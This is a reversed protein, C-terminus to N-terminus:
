NIEVKHAPRSKPLEIRLEGDKFEAKADKARVGEPLSFSRFISQHSSSSGSKTRREERQEAQITLRDDRVEVRVNKKDIGPLQTTVKFADGTEEVNLESGVIAREIDAPWNLWKGAFPGWLSEALSDFASEIDKVSSLGRAPESKKWPMLAKISM